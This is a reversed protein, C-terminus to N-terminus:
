KFKKYVDEYFMVRGSSDITAPNYWVVLAMKHFARVRVPSQNTLCGKVTLTDIAISNEQLIMKGLEFPKEMRMCGHSFYRKHMGFANKSPTDHLYVGFPSYFDLKLLGLANDCGTSQRILYPFNGASLAKWNIRYPDMIKGQANLVQYGGKELFLPSLKILPLLEKTAISHPVHWYPYLIVEQIRSTLTPTPTSAKGVVMRMSLKSANHQYVEMFAGPINVLIVDEQRTLQKLWRLNNIAQRCEKIRIGLPINLQELLTSRITGDALLDFNKQAEIIAKKVDGQTAKETTGLLQLQQLRELLNSNLLDAKKSTVIVDRFNKKRTRDLYWGLKAILPMLHDNLSDALVDLRHDFFYKRWLSNFNDQPFMINLGDYGFSPKERGFALDEFFNGAVKTVQTNYTAYDGAEGPVVPLTYDLQNLGYDDAKRVLDALKRLDGEHGPILWPLTDTVIWENQNDRVNFPQATAKKFSDASFAVTMILLCLGSLRTM